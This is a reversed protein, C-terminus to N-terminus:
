WASSKEYYTLNEESRAPAAHTESNLRDRICTLCDVLDEYKVPKLLYDVVGTCAGPPCVRLGPLRQLLHNKHGAKRSSSKPSSWAM